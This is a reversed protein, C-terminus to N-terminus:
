IKTGDYAVGAEIAEQPTNFGYQNATQYDNEHESWSQATGNTLSNTYYNDDYNSSSYSSSSNSPSGGFIGGMVVFFIGLFISILSLVAQLISTIIIHVPNKIKLNRVVLICYPILFLYLDTVSPRMEDTKLAYAGPLVICLVMLLINIGSLPNYNKTEDVWEFYRKIMKYSLFVLAILIVSAIGKHNELFNLLDSIM